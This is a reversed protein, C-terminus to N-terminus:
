FPANYETDFLTLQRINQGASVYSVPKYGARERYACWLVAQFEAPEFGNHRAVMAFARELREYQRHTPVRKTGRQFWKFLRLMWTDIAVVDYDGRLNAYFRKVKDGHLPEGALARLVNARHCRMCGIMDPTRGARFQELIKVSWDWSVKVHVQPSTAALLASFLDADDGFTQEIFRQTDRYWNKPNM